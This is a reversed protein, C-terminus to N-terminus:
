DIMSFPLLIQWELILRKPIHIIKPQNNKLLCLVPRWVLNSTHTSLRETTDLEKHGQPSYGALSRQGQSEAPLFVPTPQWERRWPIKGVWSDFVYRRCQLTYTLDQALPFGRGLNINGKQLICKCKYHFDGNTLTTDTLNGPTPFAVWELIRAQFIGHVSSDPLSCNMPDCLILCFVCVCGERYWSCFSPELDRSVRIISSPLVEIQM